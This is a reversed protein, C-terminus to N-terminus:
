SPQLWAGVRPPQPHWPHRPTCSLALRPVDGGEQGGWATFGSGRFGPDGQGARPVPLADRGPEAPSHDTSGAGGGGASILRMGMLPPREERVAFSASVFPGQHGCTSPESADGSSGGGRGPEGQAPPPESGLELARPARGPASRPQPAPGTGLAPVIGHGSGNCPVVRSGAPFAGASSGPSPCHRMLM